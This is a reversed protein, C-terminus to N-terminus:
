HFLNVNKKVQEPGFIEKSFGSNEQFDTPLLSLNLFIRSSTESNLKKFDQKVINLHDEEAKECV